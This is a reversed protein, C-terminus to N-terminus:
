SPFSLPQPSLSHLNMWLPFREKDERVSNGKAKPNELRFNITAQCQTNKGPQLNEKDPNHSVNLCCKWFGRYSSRANHGSQAKDQRGNQINCTCQTSQNLQALFNIVWEKSDVNVRVEMDFNVDQVLNDGIVHSVVMSEYEPPFFDKLLGEAQELSPPM